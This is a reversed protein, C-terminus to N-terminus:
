FQLVCLELRYRGESLENSAEPDHAVVIGRCAGFRFVDDGVAAHFHDHVHSIWEEDSPWPAAELLRRTAEHGSM